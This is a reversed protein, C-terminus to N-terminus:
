KIKKKKKAKKKPASEKINETCDTSKKQSLQAEVDTNQNPKEIIKYLQKVMGKEENDVNKEEQENLQEFNAESRNYAQIIPNNSSDLLSKEDLKLNNKLNENYQM